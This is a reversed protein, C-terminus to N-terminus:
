FYAELFETNCFHSLVMFGETRYNLSLIYGKFQVNGIIVSYSFWLAGSLVEWPSILRCYLCFPCSFFPSFLFHILFVFIYSSTLLLFSPLPPLSIFLYASEVPWCSQTDRFTSIFASSGRWGRRVVNVFGLPLVPEVLGWWGNDSQQGACGFLNVTESAAAWSDYM